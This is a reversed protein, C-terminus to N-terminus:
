RNTTAAQGADSKEQTISHTDACDEPSRRARLQAYRTRRPMSACAPQPTSRLSRTWIMAQQPQKKITARLPRAAKHAIL